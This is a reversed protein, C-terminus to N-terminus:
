TTTTTILSFRPRYVKRHIVNGVIVPVETKVQDHGTIEARRVRWFNYETGVVMLVHAIVCFEKQCQVIVSQLERGAAAM